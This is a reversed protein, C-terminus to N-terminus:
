RENIRNGRAAANNRMSELLLLTEESPEGQQPQSSTEVSTAQLTAVGESTAQQAAASYACVAYATIPPGFLYDLYTVADAYCTGIYSNGSPFGANVVGFNTTSSNFGDSSCWVGGGTMISGTPCTATVVESVDSGYSTGFDSQTEVIVTNVDGGGSQPYFYGQVDIVVNQNTNRALVAFEGSSPCSGSSDCITITTTNGIIQGKAFNLTSGSGTPPPPQDSPYASLVGNKTSGGTALVYAVIALPKQGTGAKPDLCDSVGGQVALQGSTGSVRFNRYNNAPIAGGANRTDVIRCPEVAVYVLDDQAQVPALVTTGLIILFLTLPVSKKM